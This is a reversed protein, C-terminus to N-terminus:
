SVPDTVTSHQSSGSVLPFDPISIRIKNLFKLNQEHTKQANM